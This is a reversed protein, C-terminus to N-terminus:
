AAPSIASATTEAITFTSPFFPASSRRGRPRRPIASAAGSPGAPQSLRRLSLRRFWSQPMFGILPAWNPAIGAASLGCIEVDGRTPVTLLSLLRLLTTKGAGNPGLLGIMGAQLTFDVEHLAYVGCVVRRPPSHARGPAAPRGVGNGGSAGRWGWSAAATGM